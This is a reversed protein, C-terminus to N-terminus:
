PKAVCDMVVRKAVQVNGSAETVIMLKRTKGDACAPADAAQEVADDYKDCVSTRECKLNDECNGSFFAKQKKMAGCNVNAQGKDAYEKPTCAANTEAPCERRCTGYENDYAENGRSGCILSDHTADLAKQTGCSAFAGVRGRWKQWWASTAAKLKPDNEVNTASDDNADALAKQQCQVSRTRREADCVARDGKGNKFKAAEYEDAKLLEACDTPLGAICDDGVKKWAANAAAARQTAAAFEAQWAQDAAALADRAPKMCATYDFSGNACANYAADKKKQARERCVGASLAGDTEDAEEESTAACAMTLTMLGFATLALARFRVSM